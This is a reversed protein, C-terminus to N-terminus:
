FGSGSFLGKVYQLAGSVSGAEPAQGCSMFSTTAVTAKFGIKPAVPSSQTTGAAPGSMQMETIPDGFTGKSSQAGQVPNGSGVQPNGSSIGGGSGQQAGAQGTNTANGLDAQVQALPNSGSCGDLAYGVAAARALRTMRLKQQYMSRFYVMGLFFLIFVSIVFIAEIMATGREGNRPRRAM